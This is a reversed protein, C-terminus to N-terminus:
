TATPTFSGTGGSADLPQVQVVATPNIPGYVHPYTDEGM